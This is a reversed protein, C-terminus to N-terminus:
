RDPPPLEVVTIRALPNEELSRFMLEAGTRLRVVEDSARYGEVLEPPILPPMNGDGFLLARQTSDKLERIASHHVFVRRPREEVRAELRCSAGAPCAVGGPCHLDNARAPQSFEHALGEDTAGYFRRCSSHWLLEGLVRSAELAMPCFSVSDAGVRKPM